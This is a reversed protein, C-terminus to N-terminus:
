GATRGPNHDYVVVTSGLRAPTGIEPDTTVRRWPGAPDAHRVVVHFGASKLAAIEDTVTPMGVGDTLEGAPVALWGVSLTTQSANLSRQTLSSVRSSGDLHAVLRGSPSSELDISSQDHLPRRSSVPPCSVAVRWKTISVYPRTPGPCYIGPLVSWDRPVAVVMRGIGVWKSGTPPAPLSTPQDPAASHSRNVWHATVIGGIALLGALAVGVFATRRLRAPRGRRVPDASTSASAPPHEM